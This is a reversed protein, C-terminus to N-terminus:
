FVFLTEIHLQSKQENNKLLLRFPQRPNDLVVDCAFLTVACRCDLLFLALSQPLGAEQQRLVTRRRSSYSMKSDQGHQCISQLDFSTVASQLGAQAKIHGKKVFIPCIFYSSSIPSSSFLFFDLLSLFLRPSYWSLWTRIMDQWQVCADRRVTQLLKENSPVLSIINSQLFKAM